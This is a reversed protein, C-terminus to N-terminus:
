AARELLFLGAKTLRPHLGATTAYETLWEADTLNKEAQAVPDVGEQHVVRPQIIVPVCNVGEAWERAKAQLKPWLQRDERSIDIIIKLLSGEPITSTPLNNLDNLEIVIKRPANTPISFQKRGKLILVRPEYNDGFDVTYPAGVYEVPGVRQPTHIDGAIVKNNGFIDTPIGHLHVGSDARAGEFANHAFILGTPITMGLYGAWEQEYNGTHPLFLCGEVLSPVNVWRINPIHTLFGLFPFDSNIYDHNGRMFILDCARSLDLAAEVISNVLIAPHRDKEDTVDGLVITTAINHDEILQCLREVIAFRYSDRPNATRHWDATVLVPKDTLM